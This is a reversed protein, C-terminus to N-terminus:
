LRRPLRSRCSSVRSRISLFRPLWGPLCRAPGPRGTRRSPTGATSRPCSIAEGRPRRELPSGAHRVVRNGSRGASPPRTVPWAAVRAGMYATGVTGDFSPQIREMRVCRGTTAGCARVLDIRTQAAWGPAVITRSRMSRYVKSGPWIPRCVGRPRMASVPSLAFAPFGVRPGKAETLAGAPKAPARSDKDTVYTVMSDSYPISM